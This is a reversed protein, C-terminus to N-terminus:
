SFNRLTQSLCIFVSNACPFHYTFVTFNPCFGVWTGSKGYCIGNPTQSRFRDEASVAELNVTNVTDRRQHPTFCVFLTFPIGLPFCGYTIRAHSHDTQLEVYM